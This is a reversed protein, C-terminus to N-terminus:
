LIHKRIIDLTTSDSIFVSNLGQAEQAPDGTYPDGVEWNEHVPVAQGAWGWFNCGMVRPEDQVLGFIYDYYRNRGRVSTGPAYQMKDRPYGFEEIVIPKDYKEALAIHKDLYQRTRKEAYREQQACDQASVWGWNYPWIHATIYDINEDAHIQTFLNEDYDCGHLGESGISVLHNKDLQKIYTSTQALWLAFAVNNKKGFARPENGIQWSLITPDETYRVGTYKNTHLVVDKVYQKFLIKATDNTCFQGAFAMYKDYGEIAPIPVKGAGAWELYQGYGGSWEWANNLYLVITMDYAKLMALLYDLGDFITDNYVGPATQFTPEVKTPVGREGDSGVLVRINKIGLAKLTDLEQRLRERDGGQGESALIAGYWLNAGIFQYPEGKCVLKGYQVNVFPSYVYNNSCNVLLITITALLIVKKM